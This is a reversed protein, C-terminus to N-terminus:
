IRKVRGEIFATKIFFIKEPGKITEKEAIKRMDAARSAAVILGSVM